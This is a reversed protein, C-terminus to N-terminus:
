KRLWDVEEKDLELYEALQDSQQKNKQFIVKIYPLTDQITRKVSSHTKEAIKAAIAKKKMNKQKAWWLKMIRGTPSYKTYGPYKDQKAAAVGATLLANVYVLFRWYQWRRIRGRYVDAKSLMDYAKALDEPRTYEKPLNEDIWLFSKDLDEDVNDLATLAINPDRTKFIKMLAQLMSETQKRGSLEDLSDGELKKTSGALTELDIVAGRLDGGARRALSKLTEEDYTVGETDCIRKLVKMISPYALTRFEVMSCKKRLTSFKPAYPNTATMIIPFGTQTLLKTIASIGGRDKTGSLGDIEDVLIIKGKSFLSMQRAASGVKENIQDKNRSDSANVELVEYGFKAALAYVSSTKGCGVPGYVIAARKKSKKFTTIFSVLEDMAKNQGVVASISDPQYKKVWPLGM